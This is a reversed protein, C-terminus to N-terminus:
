PNSDMPLRSATASGCLEVRVSGDTNLVRSLITSTYATGRWDLTIDQYIDALGDFSNDPGFRYFQMHSRYKGHGLYQWIGQAPGNAPPPTNDTSTLTGGSHFTNLSQISVGPGGACPAFSIALHWTGVIRDAGLPPLYTPSVRTPAAITQGCAIALALALLAHRTTM